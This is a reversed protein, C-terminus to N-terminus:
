LLWELMLMGLGLYITLGIMDNATTIFPGSAVAPDVGIRKFLLPMYTGVVTAVMIAGIMALGVVLGLMPQGVIAWAALGVILGSFAGLLLGVRLERLATRLINRPEARGLALNRVVVTSSQLGANGGMATIVPIFSALAIVQELAYSFLGIITGSLLAGGLCIVLWPLRLRVVSFASKVELEEDSTAAMKFIDETAEERLVELVDDVTIEGLLLGDSDTVPVALLDYRQFLAALEEQDLEPRVAPYDEEGLLAVPTNRPASALREMHVVGCLRAQSDTLYLNTHQEEGISRQIQDQARGVDLDVDVSVFDLSMRGGATDEPYALLENIEAASDKPMARLIARRPGEELDDLLDAAEDAPLVALARAALRHDARDFFDRSYHEALEGLLEGVAETPWLEILREQDDAGLHAFAKALDATHEAEVLGVLRRRDGDRACASLTERRTEEINNQEPNTM